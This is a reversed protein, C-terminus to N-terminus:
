PMADLLFLYFLYCGLTRSSKPSSANSTMSYTSTLVIFPFRLMRVTFYYTPMWNALNFPIPIHTTSIVYQLDNYFVFTLHGLFLHPDCSTFGRPSATWRISLFWGVVTTGATVADYCTRRRSRSIREGGSGCWIKAQDEENVEEEEQHQQSPQV